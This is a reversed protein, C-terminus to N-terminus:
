AQAVIVLFVVVVVGLLVWPLRRRWVPVGVGPGSGTPTASVTGAAGASGTAAM